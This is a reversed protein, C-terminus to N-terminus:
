EEIELWVRMKNPGRNGWAFYPIATFTEGTNLKGKIAAMDNIFKSSKEVKLESKKAIQAKMIDIKKNDKQELCYILPGYSIALEEKTKTINPNRQILKPKMKFILKIQDGNVWQKQIKLYNKTPQNQKYKNDNIYIETENIECWNPMRLYISFISNNNLSIQLNVEGEWPFRSKQNLIVEAGNKLHIKAESGIYQNIWIEEESKAYIYQELTPIMRIFNTPCCPCKFWEKREDTGQSILPNSYFYKKGDFSQGVLMANYILREILDTYKGNATILFMRWNWMINAIAACTESYSDEAELKFDKDFGETPSISGVGGTIYMRAKVMKLWILELSHLLAREGIQSYLDAIGSYLYLARVTHGVPEYVDRVPKNLQYMKGNLNAQLFTMWDKIAFGELFEATEENPLEDLESQNIFNNKIRKAQNFTKLADILRRMVYTKFHPINGRMDILHKCLKLYKENKTYRYLKILAMEIEPHGSTDKTETLLIKKVLLDAFRIAVQLLKSDKKMEYQAVAAEFLHGACYLEHFILLNTFRKSLFKTSYYTNLYGDNLQANEILNVIEKIKEQLNTPLQFRSFYFAGELWKYLDSDFYFDGLHIGEKIGAAVRFNNIHNDKELKKLIMPLSVIKNIEQRTTWFSDTLKINFISIPTLKNFPYHNESQIM